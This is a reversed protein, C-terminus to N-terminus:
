FQIGLPIYDSLISSPPETTIHTHTHAHIYTHLLKRRFVHISRTPSKLVSPLIINFYTKSLLIHIQSILEHQEDCFGTILEQSLLQCVRLGFCSQKIPYVLILKRSSPSKKMLNTHLAKTIDQKLDRSIFYFFIEQDRDTLSYIASRGGSGLEPM